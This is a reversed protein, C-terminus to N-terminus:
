AKLIKKIKNGIQAWSFVDKKLKLKLRISKQINEDNFLLLIGKKLSEKDPTIWIAEDKELQESFGGVNTCIIPLEAYIALTIVASQSGELYPLILVDAWNLLGGIEEDSLYKDKIEIKPHNIYNVNYISKGAIILKDIYKEIEIVSEMLLEVGKYPSIRGIFLLNKTKTEKLKPKIFENKFLGLPVIHIKKKYNYNTVILKKVHETLVILEDSLKIELKNIINSIGGEGKHILGDHATNIVKRNLIKFFLIFALDWIHNYPLYLIDYNKYLKPILTIFKFPFYFVSNILFQFKNNFTHIEIKNTINLHTESQKSIIIDFKNRDLTLIINKAYEPLINTRGLSLILTKKM